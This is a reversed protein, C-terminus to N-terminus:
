FDFYLIKSIPYQGDRAGTPNVAPVHSCLMGSTLGIFNMNYNAATSKLWCNVNSSAVHRNQHDFTFAQCGSHAICKDMCDELTAEVLQVLDNGAFDADNWYQM